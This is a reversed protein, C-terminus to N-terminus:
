PVWTGTDDDRGGAEPLRRGRGGGRWCGLGRARAYSAAGGSAPLRRHRRLRGRETGPGVQPPPAPRAPDPPYFRTRHPPPARGPRPASAPYAGSAESSGGGGGSGGGCPRRFRFRRWRGCVEPCARVRKRKRSPPRSPRARVAGGGGGRGQSPHRRPVLSTPFRLAQSPRCGAACLDQYVPTWSHLPGVKCPDLQAPISTYPPGATCPDWRAPVCSDLPGLKCPDLQAPTKTYPPGATCPDWRAPIWDHLSAM